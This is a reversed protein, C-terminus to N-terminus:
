PWCNGVIEMTAVGDPAYEKQEINSQEDEVDAHDAKTKVQM